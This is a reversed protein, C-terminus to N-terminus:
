IACRISSSIEHSSVRYHILLCFICVQISSQRLDSIYDTLLTSIYAEEVSRRTASICVSLTCSSCVLFGRCYEGIWACIGM